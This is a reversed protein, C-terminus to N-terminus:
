PKMSLYMKGKIMQKHPNIKKLIQAISPVLQESSLTLKKSKFKQLLETTTMPKRTLYRRVQEETVGDSSSASSSSGATPSAGANDLRPKKTAVTTSSDTAKRKVDAAPEPASSLLSKTPTGSRSSDTSASKLKPTPKPKEPESASSEGDSESSSGYDEKRPKKDKNRKKEKKKKREEKADKSIKTEEDKEEGELDEDEKDKDEEKEEDEDEEESNLIKRFAEEEAVGKLEMKTEPESEGGSSSIYDVERGEDDGDDSEEVAEEDSAGKRKKNKPKAAKKGKKKKRKSEDGDEDDDDEDDSSDDGSSSEMWEDINLDNKAGNKKGKAKGKSKGEGEEDEGDDEDGNNKMRKRVMVNFLNFTKSRSTFEEEAEEYSLHKYSQVTQFKYWEQVPFAEFAGDTAQTFVYYSANETVGGERVGRYKKKEGTKGVKGHQIIWPQDEPKYKKSIIGYKKRRAEERQEKGYESGAGFKPADENLGKFHVMNNEREMKVHNWESFEIGMSGHFRMINFKKNQNKPVRVVYDQVVPAATSTGAAPAVNTSPAAM